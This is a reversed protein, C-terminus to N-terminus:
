AEGVLDAGRECERQVDVVQRVLRLAAVAADLILHIQGFNRLEGARAQLTRELIERRCTEANRIQTSGRLHVFGVESAIEGM